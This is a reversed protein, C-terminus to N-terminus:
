AASSLPVPEGLGHSSGQIPMPRAAALTPANRLATNGISKLVQPAEPM